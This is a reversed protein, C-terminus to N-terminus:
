HLDQRSKRMNFIKDDIDALIILYEVSDRLVCLEEHHALLTIDIRGIIVM